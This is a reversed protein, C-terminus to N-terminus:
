KEFRTFSGDWDRPFGDIRLDAIREDLIRYVPDDPNGAICEEILRTAGDLDRRSLAEFAQEYVADLQPM